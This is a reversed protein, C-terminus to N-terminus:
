IARQLYSLEIALDFDESDLVLSTSLFYYRCFKFRGINLLVDSEILMDPFVLITNQSM